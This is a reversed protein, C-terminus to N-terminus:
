VIGPQICAKAFLWGKVAIASVTWNDVAPSAARIKIPCEVV